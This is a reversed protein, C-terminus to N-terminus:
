TVTVKGFANSLDDEYELVINQLMLEKIGDIFVHAFRRLDAPSVRIPANGEARMLLTQVGPLQTMWVNLWERKEQSQLRLELRQLTHPPRPIVPAVFPWLLEDVRVALVHEMSLRAWVPSARLSDLEGPVFDYSITRTAGEVPQTASAAIQVRGDRIGIDLAAIEIESFLEFRPESASFHISVDQGGASRLAGLLLRFRPWDPIGDRVNIILHRLRRHHLNNPANPVWDSWFTQWSSVSFELTELDNSLSAVAMLNMASALSPIRISRLSPAKDDEHLSVHQLTLSTLREGSAVNKFFADDLPLARQPPGSIDLAELLPFSPLRLDWKTALASISLRLGRVRAAVDKLLNFLYSRADEESLTPGVPPHAGLVLSVQIPAELAASRRALLDFGRRAYELRAIPDFFGRRPTTYVFQVENWLLADSVAIHRWYTCVATLAVCDLINLQRFVMELVEAPLRCAVVRKNRRKLLEAAGEFFAAVVHQIDGDIRTVSSRSCATTAVTLDSERAARGVYKNNPLLIAASRIGLGRIQLELGLATDDMIIRAFPLYSSRFPFLLVRTAAFGSM